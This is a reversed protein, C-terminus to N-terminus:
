RLYRLSPPVRLRPPLPPLPAAMVHPIAKTRPRALPAAHPSAVFRTSTSGTTALPRDAVAESSRPMVAMDDHPGRLRATEARAEQCDPDPEVAQQPEDHEQAGHQGQVD